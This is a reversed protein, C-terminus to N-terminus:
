GSVDTLYVVACRFLFPTFLCLDNITKENLVVKGHKTTFRLKMGITPAGHCLGIHMKKLDLGEEPRHILM